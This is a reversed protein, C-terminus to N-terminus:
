KDSREEIAEIFARYEQLTLQRYDKPSMGTVLCFHAM